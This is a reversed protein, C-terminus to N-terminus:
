TTRPSRGMPRPAPSAYPSSASVQTAHAVGVSSFLAPRPAFAGERAFAVGLLAVLAIVLAGSLIPRRHRLFARWLRVSRESGPADTVRLGGDLGDDTEDSAEIDNIDDDDWDLLDEDDAM